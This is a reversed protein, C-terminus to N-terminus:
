GVGGVPLQFSRGLVAKVIFETVCKLAEVLIFLFLRKRNGM